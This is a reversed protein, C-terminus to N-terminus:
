AAADLVERVKQGLDDPSMPKQIFTGGQKLLQQLAASEGTYGSMYLVKLGPKLKSLRELLAPGHMQPMVVDSLLLHIRGGHSEAMQLAEEPSGAVLVKYGLGSLTRLILPRVLADDEAILVTESGRVARIRDPAPIDKGTAETTVPLYIKFSTGHGLESYVSITGGGQKVVGYIIALGLGTGKGHEKTTFFPEFIRSQTEPTMGSGTDTVSLMVYRGPVTEIHTKAFNADLETNSTQISLRGGQPMADRANVALNMVVQEIQSSDAKVPWLDSSLSTELDIDEGILRRLMREFSLIVANLNLVRQQPVQQRSFSLLQRTLSTAREGAKRIEQIDARRPDSSEFSSLLFHSYGDIATLLNNFDHAVGGALRGIAEMKQAQLLQARLKASEQEARLRESQDRFVVVAGQIQGNVRIPTSTYEVPVSTGDKRWFVEDVVRCAAGDKFASYIPCEERPYDTGDPRKHHMLSHALHGIMEQPTMGLISSAARNVFTVNGSLDVGYLGEGASNLILELHTETRSSWLKQETIDHAIAYILQEEPVPTAQWLLWKYSGDKCLYRNEFRVTDRGQDLNTAEAVTRQRDDPHIRDMYPRALLEELTFGLTKQWASNLHKFYGDFGAICLMDISLSFFRESHRSIEKVILERNQSIGLCCLLM